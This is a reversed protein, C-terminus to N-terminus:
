LRLHLVIKKLYFLNCMYLSNRVVSFHYKTFNQLTCLCVNKQVCLKPSKTMFWKVLYKSNLVQWFSFTHNLLVFGHIYATLSTRIGWCLLLDTRLSYTLQLKGIMIDSQYLELYVIICIKICRIPKRMVLNEPHIHM